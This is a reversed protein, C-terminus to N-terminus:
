TECASLLPTERSNARTSIVTATPVVMAGLPHDSASGGTIEMGFVDRYFEASRAPNTAHLGVHGLRADQRGAQKGTSAEKALTEKAGTLRTHLAANLTQTM